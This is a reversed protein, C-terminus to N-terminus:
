QTTNGTKPTKRYTKSLVGTWDCMYCYGITVVADTQQPTILVQELGFRQGCRPCNRKRM